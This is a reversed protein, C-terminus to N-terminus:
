YGKEMDVTSFVKCGHFKAILEDVSRSYYSECKLAESLDRPDFCIQLKKKFQHHPAYTEDKKVIVFSNVWETSHEVKELVGQKVPDHIEEHFDDQLHIPVKRPAHRGPM